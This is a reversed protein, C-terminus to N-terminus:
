RSFPNTKKLYESYLKSALGNAAVWNSYADLFGRWEPDGFRVAWGNPANGFDEGPFALKGWAANEPVQSWWQITITPLVAVDADGRKVLDIIQIDANVPIALFKAKPFQRKSSEFERSGVVAAITINESNLDALHHLNKPNAVPVVMNLGKASFPRVFSVELARGPNYVLSSGFMDCDGRKLSLV